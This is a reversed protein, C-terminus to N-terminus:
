DGGKRKDKKWPYISRLMVFLFVVTFVAYPGWFQMGIIWGPIHIDSMRQCLLMVFGVMWFAAILLVSVFIFSKGHKNNM